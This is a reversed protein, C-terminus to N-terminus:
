LIYTDKNSDVIETQVSKIADLMKDIDKHTDGHNEMLYARSKRATETGQLAHTILIAQRRGLLEHLAKAVQMILSTKGTGDGGEFAIFM